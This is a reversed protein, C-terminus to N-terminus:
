PEEPRRFLDGDCYACKFNRTQEQAAGCNKCLLVVVNKMGEMQEKWFDVNEAAHTFVGGLRGAAGAKQRAAEQEALVVLRNWFAQVAAVDEQRQIADLRGAVERTLARVVARMHDPTVGGFAIPTVALGYKKQVEPWGAKNARARIWELAEDLARGLEELKASM